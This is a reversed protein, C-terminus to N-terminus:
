PVFLRFGVNLCGAQMDAFITQLGEIARGWRLLGTAASNSIVATVITRIQSFYSNMM